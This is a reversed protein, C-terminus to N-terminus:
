NLCLGANTFCLYFIQAQMQLVWIFAKNWEFIFTAWFICVETYYHFLHWYFVNKFM